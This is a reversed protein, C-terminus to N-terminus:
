LFALLFSFLMATGFDDWFSLRDFWGWFHTKSSLVETSITGLLRFSM